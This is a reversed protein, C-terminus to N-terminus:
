RPVSLYIQNIQLRFLSIESEKEKKPNPEIHQHDFLRYLWINTDIFSLQM